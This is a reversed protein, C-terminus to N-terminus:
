SATALGPGPRCRSSMGPGAPSGSRAKRTRALRLFRGIASTRRPGTPELPTQGVAHGVVLESCATIPRPAETAANAVPTGIAPMVVLGPAHRAGPTREPTSAGRRAITPAM